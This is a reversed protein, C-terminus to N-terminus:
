QHNPHYFNHIHYGISCIDAQGLDASPSCEAFESCKQSYPIVTHLRSIM